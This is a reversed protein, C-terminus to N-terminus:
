PNDLNSLMRFNHRLLILHDTSKFYFFNEMGNKQTFKEFLITFSFTAMETWITQQLAAFDCGSERMPM